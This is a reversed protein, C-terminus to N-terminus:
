RKTEPSRPLNTVFYFHSSSALWIDTFGSAQAIARFQDLSYYHVGQCRNARLYIGRLLWRLFARRKKASFPFDLVFRPARLNQMFTRLTNADFYEIVGLATVLDAAPLQLDPTTVDMQLFRLRDQDVGSEVLAANAAKIAASAIDVGIVREAGSELLRHAFRGSGCGVDLVTLGKVHPAILDLAIDMREYMRDQRLAIALRDWMNLHTKPTQERHYASQEWGLIRTEWYKENNLSRKDRM